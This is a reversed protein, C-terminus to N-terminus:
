ETMSESTFQSINSERLTLDDTQVKEYSMSEDELEGLDVNGMDMKENPSVSDLAELSGTSYKKPPPTSPGKRHKPLKHYAWCAFILIM